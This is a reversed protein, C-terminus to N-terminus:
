SPKTDSVLWGNLVARYHRSVQDIAAADDIRGAFWDAAPQRWVSRGIAFGIAAGSRLASEFAAFLEQQPRDYGLV